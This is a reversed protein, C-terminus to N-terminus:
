KDANARQPARFHKWFEHFSKLRVVQFYDGAVCYFIASLFALTHLADTGLQDSFPLPAASFVMALVILALNVIGMVLNIEILKGIFLKGLRFSEFLASFASRGESLMLEPAILLPWSILAWLTFFGLGLFIAWFAFGVLDPEANAPVHTAAVWAMSRLWLWLFAAFGAMWAAQLTIMALPRFTLKREHQLAALRLSLLSRGIGSLIAWAAAAAPLLWRFLGALYPQYLAAAHALQVSATWPNLMDLSGLGASEPPLSALIRQGEIWLLTLFPIGFLWRWGIELLTLSPRQYVWGMQVVLSQTGRVPETEPQPM